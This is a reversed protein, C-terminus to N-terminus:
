EEDGVDERFNEAYWEGFSDNECTLSSSHWEEDSIFLGTKRAVRLGGGYPSRYHMGMGMWSFEIKHEDALQRIENLLQSMQALRAHIERQAEDKTM